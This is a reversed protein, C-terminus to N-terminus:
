SNSAYLARYRKPPLGAKDGLCVHTAQLRLTLGMRGQLHFGRVERDLPVTKRRAAELRGRVELTLHMLLFKQAFLICSRQDGLRSEAAWM